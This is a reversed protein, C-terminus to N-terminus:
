INTLIKASRRWPLIQLFVRAGLKNKVLGVVQMQLRCAEFHKYEDGGGLPKRWQHYHIYDCHSKVRGHCTIFSSFVIKKTCCTTYIYSLFYRLGTLTQLTVDLRKNVRLLWWSLTSIKSCFLRYIRFKITSTILVKAM